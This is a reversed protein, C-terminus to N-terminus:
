GLQQCGLQPAPQDDDLVAYACLTHRGPPVPVDIAFGHAAGYAPHSRGVDPRGVNATGSAVTVGDVTVQVAIPEATRPGIAWGALQARGDVLATARDLVGFPLSSVDLDTCGLEPTVQHVDDEATICVHHRGDALGLDLNFGHRTGTFPHAPALDAREGDAAFSSVTRGNVVVHMTVPTPTDPDLAWGSLTLGAPTTQAVELTGTPAADSVVPRSGSVDLPEIHLVRRGGSAYGVGGAWAHFAIRYRGDPGAVVAGGGPGAVGDRSGLWPGSGSQDSCPGLPSSCRAYGTAYSSTAWYAGSYILWWAGDAASGAHVMSPNEVGGRQWGAAAGLLRVPDGVLHLGDRSLASGFLQYGTAGAAKWYLYPTGDDAVMISPDIAGTGGTGDCVLPPQFPLPAYPGGPVASTLRDVCQSGDASGMSVYLVWTDGLKAVSPAWTAGPVAWGPRQPAADTPPLWSALDPSASVQVNRGDRNTAFAYWADGGWVISPDPFDVNLVAARLQQPPPEGPPADQPIPAQESAPVTAPARPDLTPRPAQAARVADAELPGGGDATVLDALESAAVWRRGSGAALADGRALLLLTAAAVCLGLWNPLRRRM